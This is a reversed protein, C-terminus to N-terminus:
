IRITVLYSDAFLSLYVISSMWISQIISYMWVNKMRPVSVQPGFGASKQSIQTFSANGITWETSPFTAGLVAHEYCNNSDEHIWVKQFSNQCPYSDMGIYFVISFSDM